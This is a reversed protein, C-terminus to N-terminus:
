LMGDHPHDDEENFLPVAWFPITAIFLFLFAM